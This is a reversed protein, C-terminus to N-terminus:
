TVNPTSVKVVLGIFVFGAGAANIIIPIAKTKYGIVYNPNIFNGSTVPGNQGLPIELNNQLINNGAIQLNIELSGSTPASTCELIVEYAIGSRGKGATFGSAVLGNAVSGQSNWCMTYYQDQPTPLTVAPPIQSVTAYDSPLVGPSANRIRLGKLDQDKTSLKDKWQTLEKLVIQVDSLSKVERM